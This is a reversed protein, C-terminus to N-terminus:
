FFDPDLILQLEPPYHPETPGAFEPDLVLYSDRVPQRAPDGHGSPPARAAALTRLPGEHEASREAQGARQDHKPVDV